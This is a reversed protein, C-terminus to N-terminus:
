RRRIALQAAAAAYLQPTDCEAEEIDGRKAQYAGVAWYSHTDWDQNIVMSMNDPISSPGPAIGGFDTAFLVLIFDGDDNTTLRPAKLDHDGGAGSSADIPDSVSADDLMVLMGQADVKQSFKWEAPQEDAEAVHWYLSQRTTSTSDERILQWGAPAEIVPLNGGYTMVDAILLQGVKPQGGFGLRDSNEVCGASNASGPLGATAGAQGQAESSQAAGLTLSTTMEVLPAPIFGAVVPGGLSPRQIQLPSPNIAPSTSDAMVSGPIAITAALLILMGYCTRNSNSFAILDRSRARRAFIMQSKRVLVELLSEFM